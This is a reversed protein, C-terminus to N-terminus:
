IVTSAHINAEKGIKKALNDKTQIVGKKLFWLFIKIKLPLKVRWIEHTVKIHNTILYRYMSRVTFNGSTSLTWTITDNGAQLNVNAITAILNNWELL